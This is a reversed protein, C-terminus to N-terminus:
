MALLMRPAVALRRKTAGDVLANRDGDVVNGRVLRAVTPVGRPRTPQPLVRVDHGDARLLPVVRQGLAGTGGTVAITSVRQM